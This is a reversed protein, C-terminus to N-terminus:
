SKGTQNNVTQLFSQLMKAGQMKQTLVCTLTIDSISKEMRQQSGNKFSQIIVYRSSLEREKRPQLFRYVYIRINLMEQSPSLGIRFSFSSWNILHKLSYNSNIRNLHCNRWSFLPKSTGSKTIKGLEAGVGRVWAVDLLGVRNPNLITHPSQPENQPKKTSFLM